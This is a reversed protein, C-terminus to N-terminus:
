LKKLSEILSTPEPINRVALIYGDRSYDTPTWGLAQAKELPINKFFGYRGIGEFRKDMEAVFRRAVGSGRYREEIGTFKTYIYEGREESLTIGILVGGERATLLHQGSRLVGEGTNIDPYTRIRLNWVDPTYEKEFTYIM